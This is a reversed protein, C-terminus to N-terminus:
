KYIDHFHEEKQFFAWCNGPIEETVNVRAFVESEHSVVNDHFLQVSCFNLCGSNALISLKKGKKGCWQKLEEIKKFDRNYERQMIFSDFLDSVQEMQRISGIRMNVSAKIEIEPHRRRVLYATAPSFTTVADIGVNEALYDLISAVSNAHTLSLAEGGWCSANLLLNLKIGLKKIARLEKELQRQAQWAGYGTSEGLPGRGSPLNLWPFYVEDVSDKFEEVIDKFTKGERLQYGVSFKIGMGPVM